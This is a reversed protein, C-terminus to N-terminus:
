ILLVYAQKVKSEEEVKRRKQADEQNKKSCLVFKLSVSKASLDYQSVKCEQMRLLCYVSLQRM